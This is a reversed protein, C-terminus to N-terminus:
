GTIFNAIVAEANADGKVQKYKQFGSWTQIYGAFDQLSAEAVDTYHFDSRSITLLYTYVYLVIFQVLTEGYDTTNVLQSHAGVSCKLISSAKFQAFLASTGLTPSGCSAPLLFFSLGGGGGCM